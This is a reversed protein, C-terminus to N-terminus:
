LPGGGGTQPPPARPRRRGGGGPPRGPAGGGGGVGAEIRFGVPVLISMQCCDTESPAIRVQEA